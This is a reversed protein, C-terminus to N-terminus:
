CRRRPAAARSRSFSADASMTAKRVAVGARVIASERWPLEGEGDTLRGGSLFIRGSCSGRSRTPTPDSLRCRSRTTGQAIDYDGLSLEEKVVKPSYLDVPPGIKRGDLRFQVVGYDWSKTLGIWLAYKGASSVPTPRLELKGGPKGSIWWLQVNDRWKYGPFMKMGQRVVAGPHGPVAHLNRVVDGPDYYGDRQQAPPLSYPDVGDSSLYWFATCAYKVSPGPHDYKEICGEFSTQFPDNDVIHWRLLSQHGQNNQTMTQAHYPRQFLAPCGWAYGFYDESGTGFTSPFKEGDVFFKEDGEGWWGGRPNWVHLMVGCFRGRGQTRLM